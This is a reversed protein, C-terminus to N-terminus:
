RAGGDDYDHHNGPTSDHHDHHDHDHDDHLVGVSALSRNVEHRFRLHDRVM